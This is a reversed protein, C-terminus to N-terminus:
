GCPPATVTAKWPWSAHPSRARLGGRVAHPGFGAMVVRLILPRALEPGNEFTALTEYALAYAPIALVEGAAVLLLWGPHLHSWARAFTTLGEAAAIVLATILAIAVALALALEPRRRLREM